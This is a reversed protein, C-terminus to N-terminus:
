TVLSGSVLSNTSSLPAKTSESLPIHQMSSNSLISSLVLTIKCSTMSYYVTDTAFAPIMQVNFALVAIRAAALGTWEFYSGLSDTTSFM